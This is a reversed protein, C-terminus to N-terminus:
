NQMFLFKVEVKEEDLMGKGGVFTALDDPRLLFGEDDVHNRLVPVPTGPSDKLEFGRANTSFVATIKQGEPLVQRLPKEVLSYVEQDVQSETLHVKHINEPRFLQGFPYIHRKQLDDVASDVSSQSTSTTAPIPATGSSQSTSTVASQSSQLTVGGVVQAPEESKWKEILKRTMWRSPTYKGKQKNYYCNEMLGMKALEDQLWLPANEKQARKFQGFRYYSISDAHSAGKGNLLVTKSDVHPM